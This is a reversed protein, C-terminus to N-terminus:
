FRRFSFPRQVTSPRTLGLSGTRHVTRITDLYHCGVLLSHTRPFTTQEDTYVPDIMNENSLDDFILDPEILFGDIFYRDRNIMLSYKTIQESTSSERKVTQVRHKVCKVKLRNSLVNMEPTDEIIILSGPHTSLRSDSYHLVFESMERLTITGSDTHDLTIHFGNDTYSVSWVCAGYVCPAKSCDFFWSVAKLMM